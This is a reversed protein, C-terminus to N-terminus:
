LINESHVYAPEDSSLYELADAYDSSDSEVSVQKETNELLRMKRDEAIKIRLGKGSEPSSDSDINKLAMLAVTDLKMCKALKEQKRKVEMALEKKITELCNRTNYEMLKTLREFQIDEYCFNTSAYVNSPDDFIKFDAFEM